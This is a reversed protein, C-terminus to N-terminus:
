RLIQVLALALYGYSVGLLVGALIDTPYHMGNHLRSFAIIAAFIIAPIILSPYFSGIVVLMAVTTAMHSSPFSSDSFKRGIPTISQPYAVFPRKRKPIIRLLLHKIIGETIGFHLVAVIVIAELFPKAIEPHKDIALVVLVTWFFALFSISNIFGLFVAANKGGIGNFYRVIKIELDNM